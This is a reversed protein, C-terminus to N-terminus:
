NYLKSIECTTHIKSKKCLEVYEDILDYKSYDETLEEGKQIDRTSYACGEKDNVPTHMNPNSSHNTYQSDDNLEIIYNKWCYVHELIYKIQNIDSIKSIYEKFEVPKYFTNNNSPKWILTNKPIFEDAILAIGNNETKSLKYKIQLNGISM